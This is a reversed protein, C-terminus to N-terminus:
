RKYAKAKHTSPPADKESYRPPGVVQLVSVYILSSIGSLLLLIIFFVALGLWLNNISGIFNAIDSIGPAKFVWVPFIVEGMLQLPVLGTAILPPMALITLGFTILPLGMMIICGVGRWLPNGQPKDKRDDQFKNYRGMIM